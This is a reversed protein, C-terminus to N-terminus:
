AALARRRAATSVEEALLLNELLELAELLQIDEQLM